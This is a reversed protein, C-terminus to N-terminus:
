YVAGLPMRVLVFINSMGGETGFDFAALAM